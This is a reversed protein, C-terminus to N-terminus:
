MSPYGDHPFYDSSDGMELDEQIIRVRAVMEDDPTTYNTSPDDAWDIPILVKRALYDLPVGESGRVCHLDEIFQDYAETFDKDLEGNTFPLMETHESNDWGDELKKQNRARTFLSSNAATMIETEDMSDRSTRIWLRGLFAAIKLNQEAREAIVNGKSGGGPNRIIKCLKSIRDDDLDALRSMTFVAEGDKDVMRFSSRDTFGLRKYMKKFDGQARPIDISRTEDDEDSSDPNNGNGDDGGGNGGDDGSGGGGDGPMPQEPDDDVGQAATKAKASRPYPKYPCPLLENLYCYSAFNSLMM